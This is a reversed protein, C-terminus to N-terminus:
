RTWRVSHMMQAFAPAYRTQMSTPVTCEFTYVKGDRLVTDTHFSWQQTNAFYTGVVLLACSNGVTEYSVKAIDFQMLSHSYETLTHEQRQELTEGPKAPTVHVFLLPVFKSGAQLDIFVDEMGYVSHEVKWQPAPTISYRNASVFPAAQVSHVTVLCASVVLLFLRITQM